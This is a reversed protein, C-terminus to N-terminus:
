LVRAILSEISRMELKGCKCYHHTASAVVSLSVTMSTLGEERALALYEGIVGRYGDNVVVIVEEFGANELLNLQYVLLPRNAVPLLSRPYKEAQTLPYLSSDEVNTLIVAQFEAKARPSSYSTLTAM